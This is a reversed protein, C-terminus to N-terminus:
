PTPAPRLSAAKQREAAADYTNGQRDLADALGLHAEPYSPDFSIASQFEVIADSVKGSKLLSTGSNSAVEARQRNMNARMLEAAKKREATAEATKNQKALVAALTLHPDPQLPLRQIAQDLAATAEPLQDLHNYVSGLTAWGDGNEPQLKLSTSLERAADAYHGGQLYLIGLVYPPESMAPDLKEATELEPIAAAINDQWKFALGLNYHLQPSEPSLKLAAHLESVADDFQNLQVYAAALNQHTVPNDPALRVAKQLIPVAQTAKQQQCLAMGLNALIDANNPDAAAANEFLPIAESPRNSRQLALGLQYAADASQPMLAHAHQLLQIAQQDNGETALLRGLELNIIPNEPDLQYAANLEEAGGPRQQAQLAMGLHLHASPLSPKVAIAARFSKEANPWDKQMAYLSGLNDLYAANQPDAAVAQKMRMVAAPLQHTAALAFAYMASTDAPLAHKQARAAADLRALLVLEKTPQGLQEYAIALNLQAASDSPKLSLAKEFKPVSEQTKGMRLLVLGLNTYGPEWTPVLHVVKEFDTLAAQLDNQSLAASGARFAADAQKMASTADQAGAMCLLNSWLLLTLLQRRKFGIESGLMAIGDCDYRVSSSASPYGSRLADASGHVPVHVNVTIFIRHLFGAPGFVMFLAPSVVTTM